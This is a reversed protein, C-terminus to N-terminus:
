QAKYKTIEGNKGQKLNFVWKAGLIQVTSSLFVLEWTENELLSKM